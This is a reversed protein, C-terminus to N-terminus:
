SPIRGGPRHGLPAALVAVEKPPRSNRHPLEGSYIRWTHIRWTTDSKSKGAPRMRQVRGQGNAAALLHHCKVIDIGVGHAIIGTGLTEGKHRELYKLLKDWGPTAM